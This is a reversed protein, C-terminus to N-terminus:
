CAFARRNMAMRSSSSTRLWRRAKEPVRDRLCFETPTLTMRWSDASNRQQISRCPDARDHRVIRVHEFREARM